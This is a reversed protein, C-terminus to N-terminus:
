SKLRDPEKNIVLSHQNYRDEQLKYKPSQQSLAPCFLCKLACRYFLFNSICSNQCFNSELRQLNYSLIGQLADIMIKTLIINLNLYLKASHNLETFIPTLEKKSGDDVVIIHPINKSLLAKVYEVLSKPPNLAPIIIAFNNM